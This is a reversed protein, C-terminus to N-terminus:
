DFNKFDINWFQHTQLDVVSAIGTTPTINVRRQFPTQDQWAGLCLLTSGKYRKGENVHIHGMVFLDPIDKIVLRDVSEPAIPTSQGYKPALHRCRFLLEMAKLPKMFEYGPTSNLIDDLSKGHEVLVEVGALSLRSPSPLMKVRKDNHLAAAYESSIFPQPLSRRTADHNGPIVVIELYDPLQNLLQSAEEYQAHISPITLEDLQEPYIGIGDVLDGAIILYKVRSALERSQPPGLELNMWKIFKDFLDSRFYKSGVHVDAIFCACLPERARHPNVAPIDPFIFDNVVLLDETYKVADVGIVQDEQIELGQKMVQENTAMVSITGQKDELELFLRPGKSRKENVIGITKLKTKLPLKLADSISIADRFDIRRKLIAELREFRSQFYRIFGDSGTAPETLEEEHVILPALIDRAPISRIKAHIVEPKAIEVLSILFEKDLALLMEGISDAKTIARQILTDAIEANLGMLYGYAEPTLQYGAEVTRTFFHPTESM